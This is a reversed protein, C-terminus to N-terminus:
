SLSGATAAQKVLEAWAEIGKSGEPCSIREEPWGASRCAKASTPGIVVAQQVTGVREAWVRVTSPSAFTAVDCSKALELQAPSWVAPVTDYTSLRNVTFGRSELGRVLTNEAIASSPYLVRPGLTVPLEAALTEATSDSPEFVPTLGAAVLPKSTGKGVTAIRVSAPSGAARWSELFVNAAQPSTLVVVDCNTLATPLAPTDAGPGFAICPIEVCEWQQQKQVPSLLTALKDNAGAERTLAIRKPRTSPAATGRSEPEQGRAQQMRAVTALKRLKPSWEMMFSGIDMEMLTGVAGWVLRDAVSASDDGVDRLVKFGYGAYMRLLVQHMEESDKVALLQTTSCGREAAWVLAYSGMIFSIGPGEITYGVRSFGLTQRRNKVQITDLHFLKNFPLVPRIFANLNGIPSEPDGVPAAELRLLPGTEVAKLRLGSLLAYDEIERLTMREAGDKSKSALRLTTSSHCELRLGFSKAYADGRALLAAVLTLALLWM